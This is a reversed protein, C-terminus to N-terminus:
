SHMRLLGSPLVLVHCIILSAHTKSVGSSTFQSTSSPCAYPGREGYFEGLTLATLHKLQTLQMMLKETTLTDPCLVTLNKLGTLQSVVNLSHAAACDFTALGLTYLGSLLQLPALLEVNYFIKQLQLSHLGPCCSVLRSGQLHPAERGAPSTESIDLHRLNPLHRGAPFLQPWVGAPLKNFSIDLYQLGSSATITSYAAAPPTIGHDNPGFHELCESLHLHTLQQM